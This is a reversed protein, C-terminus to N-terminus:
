PRQPVKQKAELAKDADSVAEYELVRYDRKLFMHRQVRVNALAVTLDRKRWLDSAHQFDNGTEAFALMVLEDSMPPPFFNVEKIKYLRYSKSPEEFAVVIAGIKLDNGDPDASAPVPPGTGKGDSRCAGSTLLVCMAIAVIRM